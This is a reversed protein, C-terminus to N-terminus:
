VEQFPPGQPHVGARSSINLIRGAGRERMTSVVLQALEFPARVQVEFMLDYRKQPFETRPVSFTVAANNVVIDASGLPELTESVIRQRDSSKSIDAQIPVM